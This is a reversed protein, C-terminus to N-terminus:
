LLAIAIRERLAIPSPDMNGRQDNAIIKSRSFVRECINATVAVHNVSRYNTQKSVKEQSNMIKDMYSNQVNSETANSATLRFVVVGSKNTWAFFMATSHEGNHTWANNYSTKAAESMEASHYGEFADTSLLEIRM